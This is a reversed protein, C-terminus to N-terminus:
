NTKQPKKKKTFKETEKKNKCMNFDWKSKLKKKRRKKPKDMKQLM